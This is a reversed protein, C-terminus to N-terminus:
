TNGVEEIRRNDSAWTYSSSVQKARTPAEEKEDKEEGEEVEHDDDGGGGGGDEDQGNRKSALIGQATMQRHLLDLVTKTKEKKPICSYFIRMVLDLTEFKGRLDAGARLFAALADLAAM